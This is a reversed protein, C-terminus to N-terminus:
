RKWTHLLNHIDAEYYLIIIVVFTFWMWQNLETLAPMCCCGATSILVVHESYATLLVHVWTYGLCQLYCLWVLYLHQLQQKVHADNHRWQVWFAIRFIPGCYALANLVCWSRVWMYIETIHLILVINQSKRTSVLTCKCIHWGVVTIATWPHMEHQKNVCQFVLLEAVAFLM